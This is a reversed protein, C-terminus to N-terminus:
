CTPAGSTAAIEEWGPQCASVCKDESCNSGPHCFNAGPPSTPHPPLELTSITRIYQNQAKKAYSRTKCAQKMTVNLSCLTQKILLCLNLCTTSRERKVRVKLQQRKHYWASGCYRRSSSFAPCHPLHQLHHFLSTRSSNNSLSM